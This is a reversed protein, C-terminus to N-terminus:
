KTPTEKTQEEKAPMEIIMPRSLDTESDEFLNIPTVSEEEDKPFASQAIVTIFPILIVPLVWLNETISLPIPLLPIFYILVSMLLFIFWATIVIRAITKRDSM